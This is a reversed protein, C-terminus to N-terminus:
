FLIQLIIWTYVGAGLDDCLIGWYGPLAELKRIPYPKFVDFLRFLVFGVLLSYFHTPIMFLAVMIGCVEDMVVFFPDKDASLDLKSVAWWGILILLAFVAVYLFLNFQVFVAVILGLLSGWTGPMYPIMGVGAASTFRAFEGSRFNARQSIMFTLGSIVTLVLAAFLSIMMLNRYIVVWPNLFSFDIALYFLFTFAVALVQAGFKFKGLKEAGVAKDEFMWAIRCFTIIIERIFIPVVWWVSITDMYAFTALPVLILVKDMSPDIIKGFKSVLNYNRAYVGDLYDTVAAFLFVFFAVAHWFPHPNLLLSPLLLAFVGRSVSVANPSYLHRYNSKEWWTM